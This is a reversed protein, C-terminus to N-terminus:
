NALAVGHGNSADRTNQMTPSSYRTKFWAIQRKLRDTHSRRALCRIPSERGRASPPFLRKKYCPELRRHHRLQIRHRDLRRLKVTTMKKGSFNLFRHFLSPVTSGILREFRDSNCLYFPFGSCCRVLQFVVQDAKVRFFGCTRRRYRGGNELPNGRYFRKNSYCWSEIHM